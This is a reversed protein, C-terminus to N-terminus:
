LAKPSCNLLPAHGTGCGSDAHDIPFILISLATIKEEFESVALSTRQSLTRFSRSLRCTHKSM